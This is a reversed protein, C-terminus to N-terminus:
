VGGDGRGGRAATTLSRIFRLEDRDLVGLLPLLVAYAALAAAVSAGVGMPAWVGLAVAVAVAALARLASGLCARVYEGTSPLLALCLQSAASAAVMAAAAGTYGWPPILLMCLGVNVAAFAATNKYLVTERHVVILLNLIVTGTASLMAMAGLLSLVPGAEAFSEGFLLAMVEGGAVACILVPVGTAVVLYRTSRRATSLLRAPRRAHFGAMLPYVSVMLAEPLLTFAEAVRSAAGLLGVEVPGRMSMLLIQGMRLSVTLAFANAALPLVGGALSRWLESDYAPMPRVRTRAAAAVLIFATLNAAAMALLIPELGPRLSVAVVVALALLIARLAAIAFVARIELTARFFSRYAGGLGTVLVLSALAMLETDIRGGSVPAALMTALLAGGLAGALKLGLGSRFIATAAEPRQSIARVLVTDIGYEAVIQFFALYAIIFSYAGFQEPSLTRALYLLILVPLVKDLAQALLGYWAGRAIDSGSPTM